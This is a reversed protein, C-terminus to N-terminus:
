VKREEKFRNKFVKCRAKYDPCIQISVQLDFILWFSCRRFNSRISIIDNVLHSPFAVQNVFKSLFLIRCYKWSKFYMPRTSHRSAYSTQRPSSAFLGFDILTAHLPLLNHGTTSQLLSIIIYNGCVSRCVPHWKQFIVLFYFMPVKIKYSRFSMRAFFCFRPRAFRMIFNM